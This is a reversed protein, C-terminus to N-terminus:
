SSSIRVLDGTGVPEPYVCYPALERFFAEPAIAGEPALVGRATIAGESLMKLAVALPVGTVHAMLTAHRERSVPIAGLTAGVTTDRGGRRGRALAFLAPADDGAAGSCEGLAQELEFMLATAVGPLDQDDDGLKRAAAAIRHVVAEEARMLNATYRFGAVYRPVTLPEPHGITWGGIAGIGPYDVTHHELPACEAVQGDRYAKITIACEHLLHQMAASARGSSLMPALEERLSSSLNWCTVLERPEDLAAIAQMCLMNCIGPSVGMGIIATIGAAAARADLALMDLTPQWDDCIDLYHVGAEIASELISTGFRFYPGVTAVVVDCGELATALARRDTVDLEIGRCRGGLRGALREAARGRLDAIVIEEIAPFAAATSVAVSGASGACGLALVRM